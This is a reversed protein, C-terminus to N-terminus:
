QSVLGVVYPHTEVILDTKQELGEIAKVACLGRM